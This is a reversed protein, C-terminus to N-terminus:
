PHFASTIFLCSTINIFNDPTLKDGIGWYLSMLIFAFVLKDGVRPGLFTPDQYNKTTRYKILTRLGWWFPTVTARRVSLERLTEESVAASEKMMAELAEQGEGKLTSRNFTEALAAGGGMRDVHVIVDTIWEAENGSDMAVRPGKDPVASQFYAHAACRDGFYVLQGRVLMVLRDFLAFACPSPSHVTACITIGDSTLAKVLMLVENATYSDLGTTPEDLFLVKPNTVLAIGINVRKAQGGSIGKMLANGIRTDKASELALKEIVAGVAEKKRNYPESVPRKLEATYMMMEQVTLMGLLTDFQEVYGTYRRLFKQTPKHAAFLIEGKTEGGTKRGALLDLLTTKGSGSPGMLATMQSPLLYAGVHKLLATKKGKEKSSPVLYEIDKFAVKVGNEVLADMAAQENDPGDGGGVGFSNSLGKTLRAGSQGGAM